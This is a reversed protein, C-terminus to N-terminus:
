SKREYLFSKYLSDQRDALAPFASRAKSVTNADIDCLLIGSRDEMTDVLAGDPAFLSTDGSYVLDAGIGIRNVGGVYAQNEIARAQLLTTWHERRTAPWNALVLFLDTDPATAYFPMGFRLDYCIFITVRIAGPLTVTLLSNGAQYRETESGYSFLHVKRYRSVEGTPTYLYATNFVSGDNDLEPLTGVVHVGYQSAARSLFNVGIEACARADEGTLLSFGSTFMEPFVVVDAGQDAAEALLLECRTENEKPDNWAIDFQILALKM